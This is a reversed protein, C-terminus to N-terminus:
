MGLMEDKLKEDREKVQKELRPIATRVIAAGSGQDRAQKYDELAGDIDDLEERAQARRVYIKTYKDNLTLACTCDEM